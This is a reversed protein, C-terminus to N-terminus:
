WLVNEVHEGVCLLVVRHLLLICVVYTRKQRCTAGQQSFTDFEKYSPNLMPDVPLDLVNVGVRTPGSRFWSCM